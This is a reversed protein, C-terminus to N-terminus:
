KRATKQHDALANNIPWLSRAEAHGEGKGEGKGNDKDVVSEIGGKRQGLM